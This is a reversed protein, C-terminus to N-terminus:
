ILTINEQWLNKVEILFISSIVLNPHFLAHIHNFLTKQDLFHISTSIHHKVLNEIIVM